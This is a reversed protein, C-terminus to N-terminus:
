DEDQDIELAECIFYPRGKMGRENFLAQELNSTRVTATVRSGITFAEGFASYFRQSLERTLTLGRLPRNKNHDMPKSEGTALIAISLMGSRFHDSVWKLEGTLIATHPPSLQLSSPPSDTPVEVPLATKPWIPRDLDLTQQQDQQDHKVM